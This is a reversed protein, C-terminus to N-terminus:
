PGLDAEKIEIKRADTESMEMLIPNRGLKILSGVRMNKQGCFPIIHVDKSVRVWRNAKSHSYDWIAVRMNKTDTRYWVMKTKSLPEFVKPETTDSIFDWVTKAACGAQKMAGDLRYMGFNHERNENAAGQNLLEYFLVGKLWSLTPAELLLQAINYSVEEESIGGCKGDKDPWGIESVYIPIDKGPLLNELKAHLEKLLFIVNDATREASSACYNYPHVSLGDAYEMLGLGVAKSTWKWNADDAVAGVLVINKSTAKKIAMYADKSLAVYDEPLGPNSYKRTSLNWENWIEFIPNVDELVSAASAAYASYIARSEDSVPHREPIFKLDGKLILIPRAKINKLGQSIKYMSQPLTQISVANRIDWSLEDRMATAGLFSLKLDVDVSSDYIRNFGQGLHVCFGYLFYDKIKSDSLAYAPLCLVLSFLMFVFFLGRNIFM